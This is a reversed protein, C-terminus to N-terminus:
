PHRREQEAQDGLVVSKLTESVHEGRAGAQVTEIIKQAPDGPYRKGKGAYWPRAMREYREAADLTHGLKRGWEEPTPFGSGSPLLPVAERDRAVKRARFVETRLDAISPLKPATQVLTAIAEHTERAGLDAIAAEYAAANGADFYAGPYFTVLMTVLTTAETKNM